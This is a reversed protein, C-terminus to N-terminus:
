GSDGIMTAAAGTSILLPETAEVRTSPWGVVEAMGQYDSARKEGAM